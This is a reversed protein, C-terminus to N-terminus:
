GQRQNVNKLCKNLKGHMRCKYFIGAVPHGRSVSAQVIHGTIDFFVASLVKTVSLTRKAIVSRHADRTTWIKNDMKRQPEFIHVYTEDGTVKNM